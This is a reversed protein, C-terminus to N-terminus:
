WKFQLRSRIHEYIKKRVYKDLGCYCIIVSSSIISSLCVLLLRLVDNSISIHIFYPIIASFIAILLSRVLVDYVIRKVDIGSYSHLLYIDFAFTVPCVLVSLMYITVPNVGLKM